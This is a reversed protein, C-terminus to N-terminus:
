QTSRFQAVMRRKDGAVAIRPTNRVAEFFAADESADLRVRALNFTDGEGALRAADRRTVYGYMGMLDGSEASVRMRRVRRTGELAEVELSDGPRVDLKRALRDTLLLMGDALPLDAGQADQVRRLRAGPDIGMLATRYERAGHRLRVAVTRSGEAM